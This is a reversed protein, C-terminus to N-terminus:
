EAVAGEGTGTVVLRGVGGGLALCLCIDSLRM